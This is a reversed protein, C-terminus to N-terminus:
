IYVLWGVLWSECLVVSFLRCDNEGSSWVSVLAAVPQRTVHYYCVVFTKNSEDYKTITSILLYLSLSLFVVFVFHLVIVVTVDVIKISRTLSTNHPGVVWARTGGGCFGGGLFPFLM